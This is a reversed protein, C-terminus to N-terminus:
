VTIDWGDREFKIIGEEPLEKGLDAHIAGTLVEFKSAEEFEAYREKAFAYLIRALSEPKGLRDEYGKEWIFDTLQSFFEYPRLGTDALIRPVSSRYGGNGIYAKVVRSVMRIRILETASMHDNSIVDYPSSSTYMYDYKEEEARLMTGVSLRLFRIALPQGEALGFAKNFSREFLEETEYPLGAMVSINTRVKGAKLLKTVNYMLQYINERRGVAALVPANTSAVDINFEFLGERAESLLRITEDDLNDGSINFEFVTVGNDNDILYEFIRYARESNYNFDRDFFVVRDVEKVLFYRLERCVRGMSLSRIKTYPLYQSYATRVTDGRMTEYYVTGGTLETADYPFPLEDMDVPEDFDNVIIRDDVRYALGGINEFDFEYEYVTKLFSYLVSEGEGRIVYDVWPNMKMYKGTDFSVHMGGVIVATSPVAKKIMETVAAIHRENLANCHFYVINYHGRIIDEYIDADLDYKGYTKMTVDMPSECTVAYLYRMAYDTYKCDTKITTLLFRM